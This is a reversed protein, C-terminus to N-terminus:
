FMFSFFLTYYERQGLIYPIKSPHSVDVWFVTYKPISPTNPFSIMETLFLYIFYVV